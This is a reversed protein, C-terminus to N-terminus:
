RSVRVFSNPYLKCADLYTEVFSVLNEYKGWGNIANFTRFYDPYEKLVDLGMTLIPILQNAHIIGIEEPHWLAQYLAARKAMAGLNHTINRWYLESTEETNQGCHPCVNKDYLYVDLSM